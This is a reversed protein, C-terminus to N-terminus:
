WYLPLFSFSKCILKACWIRFCWNGERFPSCFVRYWDFFCGPSFGVLLSWIMWEQPSWQITADVILETFLLTFTYSETYLERSWSVSGTTSFRKRPDNSGTWIASVWFCSPPHSQPNNAIATAVARANWWFAFVSVNSGVRILGCRMWHKSFLSGVGNRPDLLTYRISM